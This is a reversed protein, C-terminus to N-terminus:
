ENGKINKRKKEKALQRESKLKKTLSNKDGAFEKGLGEV